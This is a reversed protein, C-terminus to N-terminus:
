DYYKNNFDKRTLGLLAFYNKVRQLLKRSTSTTNKSGYTRVLENWQRVGVYDIIIDKVEEFICKEAESIRKEDEDDQISKDPIIDAVLLDEDGNGAKSYFTDEFSKMPYLGREKRMQLLIENEFAKKVLRHNLYYNKRYLKLMVLRCTQCLDEYDLHPWATKQWKALKLIYPEYLMLQIAIDPQGYGIVKKDFSTNNKIINIIDCIVNETALTNYEDTQSVNYKFTYSATILVGAEEYKAYVIYSYINDLHILSNAVYICMEEFTLEKPIDAAAKLLVNDKM